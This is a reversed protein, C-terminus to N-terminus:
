RGTWAYLMAAFLVYAYGGYVMLWVGWDLNAPGPPWDLTLGVSGGVLFIGMLALTVRPVPPPGEPPVSPPGEPPAKGSVEAPSGAPSLV